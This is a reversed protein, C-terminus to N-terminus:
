SALGTTTVKGGRDTDIIEIGREAYWAAGM